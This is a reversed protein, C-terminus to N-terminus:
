DADSATRSTRDHHLIGQVMRIHPIGADMFVEGVERFGANRYFASAHCQAHLEVKDMDLEKALEVAAAVLAMGVGRGRWAPLVAMRGIRGDPSLRAAGIPKGDSSRALLHLCAIDMGDRELELPVGQEEVFVPERVSRLALADRPWMAEVVEFGSYGTPGNRSTAPAQKHSMRNDNAQMNPSHAMRTM